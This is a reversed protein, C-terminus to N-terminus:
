QTPTDFLTAAPEPRPKPAARPRDPCTSYHTTYRTYIRQYPRDKSIVYGHLQSGVLRACVTGEDDPIPDVPVKKGTTTMTVFVIRAQCSDCSPPGTKKAKYVRGRRRKPSM